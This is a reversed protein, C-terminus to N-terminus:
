HRQGDRAHPCQCQIGNSVKDQLLLRQARHPMASLAAVCTVAMNAGRRLIEDKPHTPSPFLVEDLEASRAMVVM